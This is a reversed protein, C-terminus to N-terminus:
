SSCWRLFDHRGGCDKEMLSRVSDREILRVCPSDGFTLSPSLALLVVERSSLSVSRDGFNCVNGNSLHPCLVDAQAPRDDKPRKKNRGRKNKKKQSKSMPSESPTYGGKKENKVDSDTNGAPSGEWPLM